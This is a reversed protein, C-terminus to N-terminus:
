RVEVGQRRLEAGERAVYEQLLAMLADIEEPPRQWNEQSFAFLTLVDVGAQLAGEVCERVAAMGAQHGAPRPLERLQAWRGNGDMIVAVHAPVFGQVRILGLLEEASVTM